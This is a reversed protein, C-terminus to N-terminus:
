RLLSSKYKEPKLAPLRVFKVNPKGIEGLINWVEENTPKQDYGLAIVDFDLNKLLVYDGPDEDGLVAEDVDSHERVAQLRKQEPMNHVRNKERQIVRDRSVVVILYDGLKKAESFLFEHGRHLPDFTGFLVVRIM